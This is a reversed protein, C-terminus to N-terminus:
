MRFYQLKLILSTYLIRGSNLFSHLMSVFFNMLSWSARTVDPYWHPRFSPVGERDLKLRIVRDLFFNGHFRIFLVM